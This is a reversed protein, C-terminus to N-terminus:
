VGVILFMITLLKLTGELTGKFPVGLQGGIKGWVGM